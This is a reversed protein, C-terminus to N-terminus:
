LRYFFMGLGVRDVEDIVDDVLERESDVFDSGVITVLELGLEGLIDRWDSSTVSKRELNANM